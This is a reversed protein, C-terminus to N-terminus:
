QRSWRGREAVIWPGAMMSCISVVVRMSGPQVTVSSASALRMTLTGCHDVGDGEGDNLGSQLLDAVLHVQGERAGGERGHYGLRVVTGVADIGGGVSREDGLSRAAQGDEHAGHLEGGAMQDFADGAPLGQGGFRAVDVDDVVGVKAARM